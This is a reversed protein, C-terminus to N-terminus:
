ARDTPMNMAHAPYERTVARKEGRTGVATAITLRGPELRSEMSVTYPRSLSRLCLEADAANARTIRSRGFSVFDTAQRIVELNPRNSL